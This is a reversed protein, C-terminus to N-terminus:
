SERGRGGLAGHNRRDHTVGRGTGPRKWREIVQGGGEGGVQVLGSVCNEEEGEGGWADLLGVAVAGARDREALDALVLLGGLKEDALKGELAEHALNGLVELRVQAKLGGGDEGQLLCGLRVQDAEELVGVEAGDVGLADGDHGLVDLEGAADAALASLRRPLNVAEAEEFGAVEITFIKVVMEFPKLSFRHEQAGGDFM